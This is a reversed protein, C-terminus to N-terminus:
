SSIRRGCTVVVFIAHHPALCNAIWHSAESFPRLMTTKNWSKLENELKRSPCRESVVIVTTSAMTAELQCRLVDAQVYQGLINTGDNVFYQVVPLSVLYCATVILYRKLEYRTTKSARRAVAVWCIGDNM